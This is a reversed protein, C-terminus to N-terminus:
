FEITGGDDQLDILIAKKGDVVVHNQGGCQCNSLGCLEKHAKDMQKKTLKGEKSNLLIESGHFSNKITIKM